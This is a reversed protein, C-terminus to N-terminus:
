IARRKGQAVRRRRSQSRGPPRVGRCRPDVIRAPLLTLVCCVSSLSYYRCQRSHLIWYGNLILLVPALGTLWRSDCCMRTLVHLLLVTAFGALAFPLRASLTSQGFFKFSVAAVLFQGWPHYKWSSDAKLFGRSVYYDVAAKPATTREAISGADDAKFIDIGIFNTGDYALPRGFRLIRSGLVATAAEDQWLYKDSLGWFLLCAALVAIIANAAAAGISAEPKAQPRAKSKGSPRAPRM